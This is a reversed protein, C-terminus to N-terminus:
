PFSDLPHLQPHPIPRPIMTRFWVRIAGYQSHIYSTTQQPSLTNVLRSMAALTTFAGRRQDLRAGKSKRANSAYITQKMYLMYKVSDKSRIYNYYIELVDWEGHPGSRGWIM